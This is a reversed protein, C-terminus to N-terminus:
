NQTYTFTSVADAVTAVLTTAGVPAVVLALLLLGITPLWARKRNAAWAVPGAKRNSTGRLYM